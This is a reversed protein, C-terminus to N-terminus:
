AAACNLVRYDGGKVPLWVNGSNSLDFFGLQEQRAWKLAVEYAEDAHDWRFDAYIFAARISYGTIRTNDEDDTADPGNMAPFTQRMNDYWRRLPLSATAPDDDDEQTELWNTQAEYWAMFAVCETPAVAPDFVALDFSM